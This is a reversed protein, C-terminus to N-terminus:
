SLKQVIRAIVQEASLTAPPLTAAQQLVAAKLGRVQGELANVRATLIAERAQAAKDVRNAIVAVTSRSALVEPNKSDWFRKRYAEIADTHAGLNQGTQKFMDEAGLPTWGSRLRHIIQTIDNGPCSTSAREKHYTLTSPHRQPDVAGWARWIALAISNYAPTDIPLRQDPGQVVLFTAVYYLNSQSPITMDRGEYINGESDGAWNYFLDYWGKTVEHYREFSLLEDATDLHDLLDGGSGTWHVELTLVNSYAREGHRSHHGETPDWIARVIDTVKDYSAQTLAM